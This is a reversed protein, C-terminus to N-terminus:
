LASHGGSGVAKTSFSSIALVAFNPSYRYFSHRCFLIAAASRACGAHSREKVRESPHAPRALADPALPAAAVRAASSCLTASPAAELGLSPSLRSHATLLHLDLSICRCAALSRFKLSILSGAAPQRAILSVFSPEHVVYSARARLRPHSPAHMIRPSRLSARFVLASVPCLVLFHVPCLYFAILSAICM